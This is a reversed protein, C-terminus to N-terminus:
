GSGGWRDRMGDLAATSQAPGGRKPLQHPLGPQMWRCEHRRHEDARSPVEPLGDARQGTDVAQGRVDREVLCRRQSRAPDPAHQQEPQRVGLIRVAGGGPIGVGRDLEDQAAQALAAEGDHRDGIGAQTLVGVVAMATGEVCVAADVIVGRQHRQGTGRDALGFRPGVDDSGGGHHIALDGRDAGRQVRGAM